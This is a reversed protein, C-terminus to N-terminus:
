PMQKRKPFILALHAVPISEKYMREIRFRCFM